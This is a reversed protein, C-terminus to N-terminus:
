EHADEGDGVQDREIKGLVVLTRQIELRNRDVDQEGPEEYSAEDVLIGLTYQRHDPVAINEGRDEGSGESDQTIKM